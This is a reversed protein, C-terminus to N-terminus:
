ANDRRYAPSNTASAIREFTEYRRRQVSYNTALLLRSSKEKREKEREREREREREKKTGSTRIVSRGIVSSTGHDIRDVNDSQRASRAVSRRRERMHSLFFPSNFLQLVCAKNTRLIINKRFREVGVSVCYVCVCM